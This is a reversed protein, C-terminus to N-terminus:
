AHLPGEGGLYIGHVVCEFFVPLATHIDVGMMIGREDNFCTTTIPFGAALTYATTNM